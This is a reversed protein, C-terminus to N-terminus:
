FPIDDGDEGRAAWSKYSGPRYAPDVDDSPGETPEASGEIHDRQIVVCGISHGNSCGCLNCTVSEDPEPYEYAEDSEPHPVPPGRYHPNPVWVDWDHLLWAREPYDMGANRGFEAVAESPTALRSEREEAENYDAWAFM